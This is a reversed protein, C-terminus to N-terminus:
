SLTATAPGVTGPLGLFSRGGTLFNRAVATRGDGGKPGGIDRITSNAARKVAPTIVPPAM